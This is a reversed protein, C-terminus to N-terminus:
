QHKVLSPSSKLIESIDRAETFKLGVIKKKYDTNKGESCKIRLNVVNSLYRCIEDLKLNPANIKIQLNFVWPNVVKLIEILEERESESYECVSEIKRELFKEIYAM